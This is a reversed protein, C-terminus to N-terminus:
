SCRREDVVKKSKLFAFLYKPLVIDTKPRLVMLKTSAIYYSTDEIEIYAHRRNAPRIESYLIDNKQFTKKFQGKLKKNEVKQHNLVHGDLVDSTNM